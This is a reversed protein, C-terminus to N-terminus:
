LKESGLYEGAAERYLAAYKQGLATWSEQHALAVTLADPRGTIPLTCLANRLDDVNSAWRIASMGLGTDLLARFQRCTRFAIVPKRAAIGQLIAGSQGTNHCVYPFATADCGALRTLAADRPLFKDDVWLHPNRARWGAIQEPTATPAILLLAWDLRGTIEALLDFNKWPFPFGISGLIPRDGCWSDHATDYLMPYRAWGPVGMRWYRIKEAPLDDAPEHVITVDAAEVIAKCHDSNPVGTDHYTVVVPYGLARVRRIEDPTWRSLLGAQYNLHIVHPQSSLPSILVLAPDLWEAVPTITIAPDAAEVAAKLEASHESVGCAVNWTTVLLVRM